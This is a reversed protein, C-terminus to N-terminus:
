WWQEIAALACVENIRQYYPGPDVGAREAAMAVGRMMGITRKANQNIDTSAVPANPHNLLVDQLLTRYTDFIMLDNRGFQRTGLMGYQTQMRDIARAYMFLAAALNGNALENDGGEALREPPGNYRGQQQDFRQYGNWLWAADDLPEPEPRHRRSFFPM